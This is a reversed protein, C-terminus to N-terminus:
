AADPPLNAPIFCCCAAGPLVWNDQYCHTGRTGAARGGGGLVPAKCGRRAVPLTGGSASIKPSAAQLLPSGPAPPPPTIHLSSIVGERSFCCCARPSALTCSWPGHGPRTAAPEQLVSRHLGPQAVALVLTPASGVPVACGADCGADQVADRMADWMADRMADWMADWVADRMADRM